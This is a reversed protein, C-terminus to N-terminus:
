ATRRAASHWDGDAFRMREPRTTLTVKDGSAPRRRPLDRADIAGECEAVVVDDEM